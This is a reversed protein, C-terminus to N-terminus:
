EVGDAEDLVKNESEAEAEISVHAYARGNNIATVQERSIGYLDAIDAHKRGDALLRKIARVANHPLGHREREKMDDMNQQHTGPVIHNPNCCVQNDCTHRAMVDDPIAAGHVLKYTLRYALVKKGHVDFYPRGSKSLGKTYPWCADPGGSMDINQFVDVEKNRKPM